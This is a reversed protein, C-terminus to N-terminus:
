GPRARRAVIPTVAACALEAMLQVLRLVVAITVAVALPLVLSLVAALATERAALGGPLVFALAAAIYGVAPAALIVLFDDPVVPYAGAALAYMGAGALLWTGAYLVVLMLLAPFPLVAPLSQRGVRRLAVNAVPRFIRPHLSVLAAVPILLIVYRLPGHDFEPTQVLAYAGIIVSGTLMLALEYVVSALCMRKSVGEPQTMAVRVMPLLLFGGPSYRALGSACWIALTRRRDVDHDLRVLVRRWLTGHALHLAVFAAGAVVLWAPRLHWEVDPIRDWTAAATTSVGGVVVVALSTWAIRRVLPNSWRLAIVPASSPPVADVPEINAAREEVAM